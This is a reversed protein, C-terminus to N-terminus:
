VNVEKIIETLLSRAIRFSKIKKARESLEKKGRNGLRYDRVRLLGQRSKWFARGALARGASGEIRKGGKKACMGQGLGTLSQRGGSGLDNLRSVTKGL